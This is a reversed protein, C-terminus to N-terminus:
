GSPRGTFLSYLAASISEDRITIGKKYANKACDDQYGIISEHEFFRGSTNRKLTIDRKLLLESNFTDDGKPNKNESAPLGPSYM